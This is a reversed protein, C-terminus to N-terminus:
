LPKYYNEGAHREAGAESFLAVRLLKNRHLFFSLSTWLVGFGYIVSRRFNISSSAGDYRTPCSIEGIRFDRMAIQAIMQNDFVFDDSNTDLPLSELVRRTFGRYGTHFESLKTGMLLNQVATLIRNSVYKYLPMGGARTTGGLIRSALVADYVDYALMSAMATLLRPTYQYDPHLMIVIDAKNRLAERYCTKQNRGYGYNADHVFVRLGLQKALDATGDRSGDDVLIIDDVIARDIEDLTQRLTRAARYAPMIVAIRRENLM